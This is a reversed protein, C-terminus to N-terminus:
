RRRSSGRTSRDSTAFFSRSWKKSTTTYADTCRPKGYKSTTRAANHIRRFRRRRHRPRAAPRVERHPQRGDAESMRSSGSPHGGSISTPLARERRTRQQTHHAVLQTPKFVRKTRWSAKTRSGGRQSTRWRAADIMSVNPEGRGVAHRIPSTCLRPETSARTM